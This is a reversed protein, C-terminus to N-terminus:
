APMGERAVQQTLLRPSEPGRAAASIASQPAPPCSQGAQRALLRLSMQELKGYARLSTGDLELELAEAAFRLALRSQAM